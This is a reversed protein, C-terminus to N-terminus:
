KSSLKAIKDLLEDHEPFRGEDKKCWVQTGDVCVDFVGGRGEILEAKIGFEDDIAEAM